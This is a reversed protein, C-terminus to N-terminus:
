YGKFPDFRLDMVRLRKKKGLRVKKKHFFSRMLFGSVAMTAGVLIENRGISFGDSAVSAIGGYLFWVASFQMFRNGLSKVTPYRLRILELESVPHFQDEFVIVQEEPQLDLIRNKHWSDPYDKLQYELVDGIEFRLSKPNNFRELQLFVQAHLACASLLCIAATSLYKLRCNM